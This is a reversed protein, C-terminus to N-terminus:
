STIFWAINVIIWGVVIMFILLLPIEIISKRFAVKIPLKEEKILYNMYSASLLTYLLGVGFYLLLNAM